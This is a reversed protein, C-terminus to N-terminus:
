REVRGTSWLFDFRGIDVFLVARLLNCSEMASHTEGNWGGQPGCFTIDESCCCCGCGCCGCLLFLLLFLLVFFLFLFLLLLLLLLLLFLMTLSAGPFGVPFGPALPSAALAAAVAAAVVGAVPPHTTDDVKTAHDYCRVVALLSLLCRMLLVKAPSGDSRRPNGLWGPRGSRCHRVLSGLWSALCLHLFCMAVAAVAAAVLVVAVVIHLHATDDVKTANDHGRVAAVVVGGGGGGVVVVVVVVVLVVVVVVVVVVVLVVVLVAVRGWSSQLKGHGLPDRPEVRGTSWLFDFRGIAVLLWVDTCSHDITFKPSIAQLFSSCKSM